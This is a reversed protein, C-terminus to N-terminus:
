IQGTIKQVDTIELTRTRLVAQELVNSIFLVFEFTSYRKDADQYQLDFVGEAIDDSCNGSSPVFVECGLPLLADALEHCKYGAPVKFTLIDDLEEGGGRNILFGLIGQRPKVSKAVKHQFPVEKAQLLQKLQEFAKGVEKISLFSMSTDIHIIADRKDLINQLITSGM